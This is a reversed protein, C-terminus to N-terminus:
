QPPQVRIFNDYASVDIGDIHTEPLHEYRLLFFCHTMSVSAVVRDDRIRVLWRNRVRDRWIRQPYFARLMRKGQESVSWFMADTSMRVSARHEDATMSSLRAFLEERKSLHGQTIVADNLNVIVQRPRVTRISLGNDRRFVREQGSHVQLSHQWDMRGRMLWVEDIGQLMVELHKRFAGIEFWPTELTECTAHEDSQRLADHFHSVLSELNYIFRLGVNAVTITASKTADADTVSEILVADNDSSYDVETTDVIEGLYIDETERDTKMDIISVDFSSGHVLYFLRTQILMFLQKIQYIFEENRGTPAFVDSMVFWDLGVLMDWCARQSLRTIPVPLHLEHIWKPHIKILPFNSLCRPDDVFENCSSALLFTSLAGSLVDGDDIHPTLLHPRMLHHLVWLDVEVTSRDELKMCAKIIPELDYTPEANSIAHSILKKVVQRQM